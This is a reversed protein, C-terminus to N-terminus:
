RSAAAEARITRIQEPTALVILADGAALALQADPNFRWEGTASRLVGVVVADFHRRFDVAALSRGDLLSGAGVTVEELDFDLADVGLVQEMFRDVRPRLITQAIRDAGIELPSIVKDAGARLLKNISTQENTRAVIFLDRGDMIERASLAVFVNAADQPLVLVLGAARELGAARLTAEEEAEDQVYAYGADALQAARDDRRDVVVIDRGAAALDRAIRQGLRGYGAIIYHDSLRDIRRQMARQRFADNLVLLQVVRTAITAFTGIGVVGLGITFLRGLASLPQVESFGITALTIFTMYLADMPAWGEILMYGATGVGFLVAIALTGLAM